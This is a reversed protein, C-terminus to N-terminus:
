LKALSFKRVASVPFLDEPCSAMLGWSPLLVMSMVGWSPLLGLSLATLDQPKSWSVWLWTNITKQQIFTQLLQSKTLRCKKGGNGFLDYFIEFSGTSVSDNYRVSIKLFSASFILSYFFPGGGNHM